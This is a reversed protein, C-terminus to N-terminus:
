NSYEVTGTSCQTTTEYKVGDPVSDKQSTFENGFYGDDFGRGFEGGATRPKYM